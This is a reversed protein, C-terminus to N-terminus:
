MSFTSGLEGYKINSYTVYADRHQREVDAPRGSTTPCSGRAVGPMSPSRNSPYNSDLWLMYVAHDDWLSMVLAMGRELSGGMSKHGGKKSYDNPDHFEKKQASCFNETVSNFQMGGVTVNRSQIVKGNQVWIRNINSLDGNDTGDSTLFQTVVTFPKTTDITFNSSPGFFTKDGLRYPNFDCGDKDCVGDYRQGAANNGCQTGVCRTQGQVTCAHPTYATSISNSEWIDMENCCTGYQGTASSSNWKECNAEGNIFKIDHPCQADCYGTGFKAGAKNGPYKSMGGDGDMEVMYLAGNIGCPLKSVDVDFTFEKNKLRFLTYESESDLLYIRSGVNNNTVFNLRVSSGSTIVGYVGKYDAGDLACNKACTAGDPCLSTDWSTGTYCNKYGQVTHTWRWNADLVVSKQESQCGGNKTCSEVTLSPHNEATNTGVQQSCVPATSFLLVASIVICISLKMRAFSTSIIYAPLRLNEQAKYLVQIPTVCLLCMICQTTIYVHMYVAVNNPM